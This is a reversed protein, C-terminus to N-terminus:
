SFNLTRPHGLMDTTVAFGTCFFVTFLHMCFSILLCHYVGSCKSLYCLYIPLSTEYFGAKGEVRIFCAALEESHRYIDVVNCPTVDLLVTMKIIFM